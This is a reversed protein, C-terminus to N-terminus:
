WNIANLEDVTTAAEIQAVINEYWAYAGIQSERVKDFVTDFDSLQMVVMGKVTNDLWVKYFTKGDKEAAKWSAFFNTIDENACDFGYTNGDSVEIFRIEDRKSAFVAGAQNRKEKKLNEFPKVPATFIANEPFSGLEKMVRAPTGYPDSELWYEKGRNDEVYNWVDNKFVQTYGEKVVLPATFTSNAPLLFVDKGQVQSELPDLLATEVGIFEKTLEDYKYVNM